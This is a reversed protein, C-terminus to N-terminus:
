NDGTYESLNSHQSQLYSYCSSNGPNNRTFNNINNINTNNTSGGTLTSDFNSIPKGDITLTNNQIEIKFRKLFDLLEDPSLIGEYVKGDIKAHVLDRVVVHSLYILIQIEMETLKNFTSLKM